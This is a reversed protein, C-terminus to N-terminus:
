WLNLALLLFGEDDDYAVAFRGGVWNWGKSALHLSAMKLTKPIVRGPNSGEDGLGPAVSSTGLPDQCPLPLGHPQLRTEVNCFWVAFNVAHNILSLFWPLGYVPFRVERDNAPLLFCRHLLHLQHGEVWEDLFVSQQTLQFSKLKSTLSLLQFFSM